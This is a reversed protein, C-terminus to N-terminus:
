KAARRAKLWAPLYPGCCVILYGMYAIIVTVVKPLIAGLPALFFSELKFFMYDSEPDVLFNVINAPVSLVLAPIAPVLLQWVTPVVKGASTETVTVAAKGSHQWLDYRQRGSLLLVAACFLLAAHYFQTHFGHFSLWSYSDLVSAPYVFNILAGLICVTCLCGEGAARLWGKGWIVCPMSFLFLSCPWLPLSDEMHFVVKAGGYTEYLVIVVEWIVFVIWLATFTKRIASEGRKSLKVALFGTLVALLLSCCIQMPTFLTGPIQDAPPLFDEHTFFNKVVDLLTM